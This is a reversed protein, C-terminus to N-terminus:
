RLFRVSKLINEFLPILADDPGDFFGTFMYVFDPRAVVVNENEWLGTARYRLAPENAVSTDILEGDSLKFNSFSTGKVFNQLTYHDLNNQYISITITPPPDAESYQGAFFDRNGPTDELIVISYRTREGTSEDVDKVLYGAPYQFSVGLKESIYEKTSSDENNIILWLGGISLLIVAAILLLKKM